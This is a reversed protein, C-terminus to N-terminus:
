WTAGLIAEVTVAYCVHSLIANARQAPSYRWFARGLHTAPILIADSLFWLAVGFALGRGTGVKPRRARVAAYAIAFGCGFAYHLFRGVTIPNRRVHEVPILQSVRAVVSVIAETEEDRDDPERRREFVATFGAQVIDMALSGAAGAVIAAVASPRIPVDESTGVSAASRPHEAERVIRSAMNGFIPGHFPLVGYWYLYGFVGRPDFFATQRLSTRGDERVSTEFQLWAYGPLRMEARLRLLRDVDYAEVRWFDVADGVRLDVASRRGRRIGIGGILRDISGRLAWLNDAYLWGRQGGLTTFVSFVAAPSASTVRERRDILMGETSGTFNGPLRRVDYADFWTTEPGVTSYRDLARRVAEEFGVPRITPFARLARDDRVVVPSRLGDILPRGISSPIPTVLHVWGSSLRPTFLPIVVLKRRLSRIAAYQMMMAKYSLVDAGGIEYIADGSAVEPRGIAAVLYALVDRVAIPQCPTSVWKPAVMVPLRETLYRMMEFSVSGSGVIMAARFETVPIGSRRLVEGVEQRSRLHTSLTTGEVGLGGLYVIRGVHSARAADAFSAAVERDAAAFDARGRDMSHILYYVADVDRMARRISDRDSVDGEFIEAGEFRGHLRTSDRAFARVTHGAEVLRPVLRGGIYGTAGTVLVRM